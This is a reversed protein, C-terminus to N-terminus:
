IRASANDDNRCTKECALGFIKKAGAQLLQLGSYNMTIGSQYLDDILLVKRGNFVGPDVAITGLLTDLKAAHPVDKVSERVRKTRVHSSFDPLDPRAESIRRALHRPLSYQRAPDSPPMAVVCNATRYCTMEELFRLCREALKDAAARTRESAAAGSYPKATARLGGVETQPRNPDGEEREFDLAYSLALYDRMGVYQGVTAVWDHVTQPAEPLGGTDRLYVTVVGSDSTFPDSISHAVMAEFSGLFTEQFPLKLRFDKGKATPPHVVKPWSAGLRHRKVDMARLQHEDFRQQYPPSDIGAIM